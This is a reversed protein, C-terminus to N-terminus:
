LPRNLYKLEAQRILQIDNTTLGVLTAPSSKGIVNEQYVREKTRLSQVDNTTLKTVPDPLRADVVNDKRNQENQRILQIDYSTLGTLPNVSNIEGGISDLYEQQNQHVLQVDSTTLGTMRLVSNAYGINSNLYEQEKQRVSNSLATTPIAANDNQGLYLKTMTGSSAKDLAKVTIRRNLNDYIIFSNVDSLVRKLLEQPTVNYLKKSVRKQTLTDDIEVIWGDLHPINQVIDRITQDKFDITIRNEFSDVVEKQTTSKSGAFCLEFIGLWLFFSLAVINFCSTVKSRQQLM